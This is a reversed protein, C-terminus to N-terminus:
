PAGGILRVALGGVVVIVALGGAIWALRANIRDISAEIEGLRRDLKDEFRHQDAKRWLEHGDHGPDPRRGRDRDRWTM